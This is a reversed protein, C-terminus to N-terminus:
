GSAPDASAEREVPIPSRSALYIGVLVLIVSVVKLPGPIEALLILAWLTSGVPEGLLTVSVVAVPLYRLAWNFSSHGLLQPGLALLAFLLYALPPYGFLRGGRLLTVALLVLAGSGYSLGIYVMLPLERRLRRGIMFYGAGTLAGALALLDGWLARGGLFSGLPPCRLPLGDLCADSLAIGTAGVLTLGLGAVVWRTLREGLWLPAILAVFLPSTAVLVASSAVTTYELSTIWTAFHLALLVGSLLGLRAQLPTLRRLAPRQGIVVWPALILFALGLRWAAIILSSALGQAFRILISATSTVLIGFAIVLLPAVAPKDSGTM